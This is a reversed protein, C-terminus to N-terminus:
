GYLLYYVQFGNRPLDLLPRTQGEIAEELKNEALAKADGSGACSQQSQEAVNDKDETYINQKEVRLCSRPNSM